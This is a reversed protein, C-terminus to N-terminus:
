GTFQWPIGLLTTKNTKQVFVRKKFICMPPGWVGELGYFIEQAIFPITSDVLFPFTWEKGWSGLAHWCSLGVQVLSETHDTSVAAMWPVKLPEKEMSRHSISHFRHLPCLPGNWLDLSNDKGLLWWLAPSPPCQGCHGSCHPVSLPFYFYINLLVSFQSSNFIGLNILSLKLFIVKFCM